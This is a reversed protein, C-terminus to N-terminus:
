RSYETHGDDNDSDGWIQLRIREEILGSKYAYDYFTLLGRQFEESFDYLITNFYDAIDKKSLPYKALVLETLDASNAIGWAKSTILASHLNRVLESNNEAFEKKIVWLAYVMKEGTFEKWVEGLDTVIFNDSGCGLGYSDTHNKAVLADDGILLAADALELMDPLRPESTVFEVNVHYYHELLIKLLVVSTASSSTSCVKKGDLETVPIKSFLLISKVSGDSSISLDPLILCKDANRAYEISSIPTIDLDGNLFLRNLDTPVGKIIEAKLKGHGTDLGQYVPLCNIYDVQGLRITKM